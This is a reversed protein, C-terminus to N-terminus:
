VPPKCDAAPELALVVFRRIAEQRSVYGPQMAIWGDLKEILDAPMRITIRDSM